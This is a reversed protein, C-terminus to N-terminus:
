LNGILKVLDQHLGECALPEWLQDEYIGPDWIKNRCVDELQYLCNWKPPLHNSNELLCWLMNRSGKLQSSYWGNCKSKLSGVMPFRSQCKWWSVLERRSKVGCLARLQGDTEFLGYELSFNFSLSLFKVWKFTTNSPSKPILSPGLSRALEVGKHEEKVVEVEQCAEEVEVDEEVEELEEGSKMDCCPPLTSSIEVNVEIDIPSPEEFVLPDNPTSTNEFKSNVEQEVKGLEEVVEEKNVIKEEEVQQLVYGRENDEHQSELIENMSWEETSKECEDTSTSQKNCSDWSDLTAKTKALNAEIAEHRKQAEEQEKQCIIAQLRDMEEKLRDM